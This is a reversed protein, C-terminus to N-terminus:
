TQIGGSESIFENFTKANTDKDSLIPKEVPWPIDLEPSDWHISGQLESDYYNDIKYIMEVNDTLTCFGHAFGRPIYIMKKDEKSLEISGWEGLTDSQARLDVYVDFIKGRTVRVLKTEVRPSHQFHLGRVVGEKNSISHSHQVWTQDIGHKNFIDQDYVRMFSGRDDEIPNLKIEHVGSLDGEIIEM